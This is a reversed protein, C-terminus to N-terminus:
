TQDSPTQCWRELSKVKNEYSNTEILVTANCFYEDYYKKFKTWDIKGDGIALHLDDKLDNDNIHLHKVYPALKVVWEDISAANGFCSAHAYDLCIGFNKYQSLRKALGLIVDPTDDFMNEIYINMDPYEELMKSWFSANREEWNKLYIPAKLQPSHNTHFIVAQAHIRYAVEISQRIRKEAIERILADDSFIIVDFFDGHSTFTIDPSAERIEDYIKIRRELEEPNDLIVPSFFDNSEFGLNYKKALEIHSDINKIDPIIFLRDRM